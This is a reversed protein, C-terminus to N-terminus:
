SVCNFTTPFSVQPNVQITVEQVNAAASTAEGPVEFSIQLLTFVTEVSWAHVTSVKYQKGADKAKKLAALILKSDAPVDVGAVCMVQSLLPTPPASRLATVKWGLKVGAKDSQGGAVVKSVERGKVDIGARGVSPTIKIEKMM